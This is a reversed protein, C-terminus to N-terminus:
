YNEFRERKIETDYSIDMFAVCDHGRCWNSEQSNENCGMRHEEELESSSCGTYVM